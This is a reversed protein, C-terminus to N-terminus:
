SIIGRKMAIYVAHARNNASLRSLIGHSIRNSIVLTTTGLKHAIAKDTLGLKILNLIEIQRQTLFPPAQRFGQNIDKSM